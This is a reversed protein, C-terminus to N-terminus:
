LAITKASLQSEDQLLAHSELLVKLAGDLHKGCTCTTATGVSVLVQVWEPAAAQPRSVPLVVQSRTPTAYIMYRGQVSRLCHEGDKCLGVTM